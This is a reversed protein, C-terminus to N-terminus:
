FHLSSNFYSYVLQGYKERGMDKLLFSLCNIKKKKNPYNQKFKRVLAVASSSLMEEATLLTLYSINVM